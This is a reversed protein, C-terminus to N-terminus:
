NVITYSICVQNTSTFPIQVTFSTGATRATVVPAATPVTSDCTIGLRTGLSEDETVLIQSNATVATTNVVLSQNVGSPIAVSGSPASTCVAPSASSSCNITSSVKAARFSGNVDLNFGNDTATNIGVNATGFLTLINGMGGFSFFSTNATSGTGVYRYGWYASNRTSTGDKGLYMFSTNGAGLNPVLASFPIMSTANPENDQTLVTPSTISTATSSTFSTKASFTKGGNITQTGSLTTVNSPAIGSDAGNGAGDGSILNTTSPITAGGGGGGSPPNVVQAFCISSSFLLLTLYKM